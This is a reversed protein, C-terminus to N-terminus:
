ISGYKKDKTNVYYTMFFLGTQMVDLLIEQLSNQKGGTIGRWIRQWIEIVIGMVFPMLFAVYLPCIMFIYGAIGLFLALMGLDAHKMANPDSKM